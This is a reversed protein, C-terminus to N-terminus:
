EVNRFAGPNETVETFLVVVFCWPDYFGDKASFFRQEQISFGTVKM